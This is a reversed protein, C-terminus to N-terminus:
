GLMCLTGDTKIAGCWRYGGGIKGNGTAWTTGPIQIPSSKNESPGENLGLQGVTNSGWSWLTGNTKSAVTYATQLPCVTGWTTDTGIQIPSSYSVPAANSGIQGYNSLGWGWLTGDSKKTMVHTVLNTETNYDAWTVGPVQVPSSYDTRNNQALQGDTNDGWAWLKRVPPTATFTYATGAYNTGNNDVIFGSPIDLQYTQKVTLASVLAGMTFETVNFTCSSEGWSQITTGAAGANVIKLTATGSGAVVKKNFTIGIGTSVDVESDNVDPNYHWPTVTEGVGTLASGDGAFATATLTGTKTLTMIDAASGSTDNKFTLDNVDQNSRIEWTDGNDDGEDAVLAIAASAGEAAHVTIGDSQTSLKKVGNYYLEVASDNIVKIGSEGSKPILQIEAGDAFILLNGTAGSVHKIYSNSGDHYISMDAGSGLKMKVSDNLEFASNTENWMANNSAGLFTVDDRFTSIGANNFSDCDVNGVVNVGVSTTNLKASGNNYLTVAADETGTIYNEGSTFNRIYLNNNSQIYLDGTGNHNIASNNSDHYVSLDSGTGFIAQAGDAFILDDTSKDWTVNAADGPFTVDGGFTSIGANNLSDCDVNGVVNVGVSTTEVRKTADYYLEVAGDPILKVSNEGQKPQIFLTSNANSIQLEGTNNDIYSNSVDHYISLDGGTGFKANANDNFILDDTSKDFTINAAAGKLTLDDRITTIGTVDVNAATLSTTFAVPAKLSTATVSAGVLNTVTFNTASGTTLTTVGVSRLDKTSTIGLVDLGTTTTVGSIKQNVATVEDYTLDGTVNLNGTAVIDKFYSTNLTNIGVTSSAISVNVTNGISVLTNGIGIFNIQTIGVGIAVGGSQIGVGATGAKFSTNTVTGDQITNLSLAQGLFVGFFTLGASPATTFTITSGSVTYDNTPNQMVGGVSILVQADSVPSVASSSVTLNFQTTSGNFGSSIDDLEKINAARAPDTSIWVTGNWEYRFGSTSDDYIDGTSPSDPFNLTM